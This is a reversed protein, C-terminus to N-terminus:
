PGGKEGVIEDKMKGLYSVRMKPPGTILPVPVTGCQATSKLKTAVIPLTKRAAAPPVKNLVTGCGKLCIDIFSHPMYKIFVYIALSFLHSYVPFM